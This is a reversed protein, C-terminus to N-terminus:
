THVVVGEVDKLLSTGVYESANAPLNIQFGTYGNIYGTAICYRPVGTTANYPVFNVFTVVTEAEQNGIFNYWSHCLREYYSTDNSTAAASAVGLLTWAVCM